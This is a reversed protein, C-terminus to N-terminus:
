KLLRSIVITLTIVLVKIKLITYNKCLRDNLSTLSFFGFHAVLLSFPVETQFSYIFLSLYINKRGRAIARRGTLRNWLIGSDAETRSRRAPETRWPQLSGGPLRLPAVNEAFDPCFSFLDAPFRENGKCFPITFFVYKNGARNINYEQWVTKVMQSSLRRPIKGGHLTNNSSYCDSGSSM